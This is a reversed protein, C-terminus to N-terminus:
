VAGRLEEDRRVECCYVHRAGARAAFMSLLGTGGGIDLVVAGPRLLLARRIARDYAENRAQDNLMRYHWQDAVLAKMNELSELVSLSKCTQCLEGQLLDIGQLVENISCKFKAFGHLLVESKWQCLDLTKRWLWEANDFRKADILQSTFTTLSFCLEDEIIECDIGQQLMKLGLMIAESFQQQMILRDLDICTETM